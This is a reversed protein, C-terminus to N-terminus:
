KYPDIECICKNEEPKVETIIGIVRGSPDRVPKGIMSSYDYADESIDEDFSPYSRLNFEVKM